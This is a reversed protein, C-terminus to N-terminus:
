RWFLLCIHRGFLGMIQYLVYLEGKRLDLTLQWLVAFLFNITSELWARVRTIENKIGGLFIM